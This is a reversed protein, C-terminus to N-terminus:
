EAELSLMAADHLTVSDQGVALHVPDARLWADERGRPPPGPHPDEGVRGIAAYPVPEALGFRGALWRGAGMPRETTRQARALWRELAPLRFEPTETPDRLPPFLDPLLLDFAV